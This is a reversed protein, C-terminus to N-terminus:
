LPILFLWITPYIDFALRRKELPIWLKNCKKEFNLYDIPLCLRMKHGYRDVTIFVPAYLVPHGDLSTLEKKLARLLTDSQVM